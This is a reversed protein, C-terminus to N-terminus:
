AAGHFHHLPHAHDPWAPALIQRVMAETVDALAAPEWRPAHDKDIVLARIGEIVQGNELTRRVAAREMRLCDAMSMAAGQEQLAYAVCMMLPSRTAMMALTTRAFDSDDAQLSAMIAPVSGAGFHHDIAARDRELASPGVAAKFPAAFAAIAGPLGAGGNSSLVAELAPLEAVPVYHDALGAYLADAAGITAGAVGLYLGLRGPLRSLFYSAGVDPFLGINTEPMAMRTRETVIRVRSQPGAQAVGMGGGMVVGDMLAIYPKPYHHVLHNLAYEETFFDEVLASGQQPTARGLDHFFRIDGGACFAKETSGRIVVAQVADDDRWALLTQTVARVMDLSLSNLARPRDLTTVATGDSVATLVHASM